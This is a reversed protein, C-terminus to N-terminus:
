KLLGGIKLLEDKAKPNVFLGILSILILFLISPANVDTTEKVLFSGVDGFSVDNGGFTFPSMFDGMGERSIAGNGRATSVQSISFAPSNNPNQDNTLRAETDDFFGISYGYGEEWGLEPQLDNILITRTDRFFPHWADFAGEWEPVQATVNIYNEIINYDIPGGMFTTVLDEINSSTALRWGEFKEGPSTLVQIELYSFNTTFNLPLWELEMGKVAISSGTITNGRGNVFTYDKDTFSFVKNDVFPVIPISSANVSLTFILYTGTLLAIYKM